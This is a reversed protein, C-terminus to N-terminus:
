VHISLTSLLVLVNNGRNTQATGADRSLFPTTAAGGHGSPHRDVRLRRFPHGAVVAEESAQSHQPGGDAGRPGPM